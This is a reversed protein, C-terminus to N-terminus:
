KGKSFPMAKWKFLRSYEESLSAKNWTQNFNAWKNKLLLNEKLNTLTTESNRKSFPPIRWNFLSSDEGGVSAKQWTQKFNAWQNHLLLYFHSFNVSLCVSPRVYLLRDSYSVQVKLEPSSFCFRFMMHKIVFKCSIHPIFRLELVM